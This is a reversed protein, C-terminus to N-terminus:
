FVRNFTDEPVRPRKVIFSVPCTQVTTSIRLKIKGERLKEISIAKGEAVTLGIKNFNM